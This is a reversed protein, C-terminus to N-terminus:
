EARGRSESWSRLQFLLAGGFLWLGLAFSAAKAIASISTHGAAFAVMSGAAAVALAVPILDIINKRVADSV